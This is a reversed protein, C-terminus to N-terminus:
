NSPWPAASHPSPPRRSRGDVGASLKPANVPRTSVQMDAAVASCITPDDKFASLLIRSYDVGGDNAQNSMLKGGISNCLGCALTRHSLVESYLFSDINFDKMIGEKWASSDVQRQAEATIEQWAERADAGEAQPHHHNLIRTPLLCCNHPLPLAAASTPAISRLYHVSQHTRYNPTASRDL